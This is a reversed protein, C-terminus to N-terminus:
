FSADSDDDPDFNAADAGERGLQNSTAITDDNSDVDQIYNTSVPSYFTTLQWMAQLTKNHTAPMPHVVAKNEEKNDDEQIADVDEDEDVDAIPAMQNADDNENPIVNM